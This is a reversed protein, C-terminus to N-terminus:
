RSKEYIFVSIIKFGEVLRPRFSFDGGVTLGDMWGDMWESGDMSWAVCGVVWVGM